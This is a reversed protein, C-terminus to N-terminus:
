VVGLLDRTQQSEYLLNIKKSQDQESYYICSKLLDNDIALLHEHFNDQRLELEEEFLEQYVKNYSDLDTMREDFYRLLRNALHKEAVNSLVELANGQNARNQSRLGRAVRQFFERNENATYTIVSLVTLLYNESIEQLIKEMLPRIQPHTVVPAQQYLFILAQMRIYQQFAHDARRALEERQKLNLRPYVLSLIELKEEVPVEENFAQQVLAPKCVSLSLRLLEKSEHVISRDKSGLLRIIPMWDDPPSCEKLAHLAAIKMEKSPSDLADIFSNKYPDLQGEAELMKIHATFAACRIEQNSDDLFPTVLYSYVPRRLEGLTSLYYYFGPLDPRSLRILIREELTTKDAYNPTIYLCLCAEVFIKPHPHQLLREVVQHVLPDSPRFKSLDRLILIIIDLNREVRLANVLHTMVAESQPLNSLTEICHRKVKYDESRRLLRGVQQTFSKMSLVRVMELAAIVHQPDASQLKEDIVHSLSASKGVNARRAFLTRNLLGFVGDNYAAWQPLAIILGLLSLGLVMMPLLVQLDEDSVNDKLVILTTSAIVTALPFAIGNLFAKTAGWMNPPVANFLLNNAPTRLAGRMEQNVFQAIIGTIFGFHFLLGVSVSGVLVPHLINSAGVGLRMIIRSTLFLQLLLWTLNGFVEYTAFFTAREKPDAFKEPYIMGQYQFELLKSSIVFLVLGIAMYIMLKSHMIYYFAGQLERLPGRRKQTSSSHGSRIPSLRMNVRRVLLLGIGCVIGLVFVLWHPSIFQLLLILVGGGLAGGIPFGSNIFGTVRKLQVASFYEAVVSTIHITILIYILFFGIFFLGYVWAYDFTFLVGAIVSFSMAFLMLFGLISIASRTKTYHAYGFLSLMASLDILIFAKPLVDPGLYEVLLTMGISRSISFGLSLVLIILFFYTVAEWENPKISFLRGLFRLM